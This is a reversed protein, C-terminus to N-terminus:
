AKVQNPHLGGQAIDVVNKQEKKQEVNGREEEGRWFSDSGILVTVSFFFLCYVRAKENSLICGKGHGDQM